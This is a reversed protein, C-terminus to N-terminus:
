GPNSIIRRKAVPTTLAREVSWGDKLRGDLTHRKMGLHDAWDAACRTENNFTLMVNNRKNRQQEAITAWRVNGPEYNGDNDPYRDLSHEPSPRRGVDRIFAEFSDRWEQFVGIGRGGYNEYEACNTNYCRQKMAAYIPYEPERQGRRAM